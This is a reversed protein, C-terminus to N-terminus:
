NSGLFIGLRSVQAWSIHFLSDFDKTDTYGRVLAGRRNSNDIYYVAAMNRLKEGLSLLIGVVALM